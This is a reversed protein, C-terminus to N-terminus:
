LVKKQELVQTQTKENNRPWEGELILAHDLHSPTLTGVCISYGTLNGVFEVVKLKGVPLFPAQLKGVGM